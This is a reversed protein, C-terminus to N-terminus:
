FTSWHIYELSFNKHINSYNSEFSYIIKAHIKESWSCYNKNQMIFYLNCIDCSIIKYYIHVYEYTHMKM